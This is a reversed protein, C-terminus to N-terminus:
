WGRLRRPGTDLRATPEAVQLVAQTVAVRRADASATFVGSWIEPLADALASLRLALDVLLEPDTSPGGGYGELLPAARPTAILEGADASTLPVAAYARDQLLETAVGSIGFSLLTGFSRDDHVTFEVSVRQGDLDAAAPDFRVGFYGLVASAEDASLTRGAPSSGLVQQVL